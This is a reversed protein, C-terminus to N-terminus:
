VSGRASIVYLVLVCVALVGGRARVSRIAMAAPAVGRRLALVPTVLFWFFPVPALMLLPLDGIMVGSAYLAGGAGMLALVLGASKAEGLAMATTARSASDRELDRVEQLVGSAAAMCFVASSFVFVEASPPRFLSYGMLVFLAPVSGHVAVDMGPRAKFQPGWSYGWYLGYALPAIYLAPPAVFYLAGVSGAALVSFLAVGERLSLEGTALPNRTGPDAADEGRDTIDNLVFASASFLGIFALVGVLGETVGAGAYAAGALGCLLFLPGYEEFRVLALWPRM